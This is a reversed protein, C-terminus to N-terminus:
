TGEGGTEPALTVTENDCDLPGEEPVDAVIVRKVPPVWLRRPGERRYSRQPRTEDDHIENRDIAADLDARNM